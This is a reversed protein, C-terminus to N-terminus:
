PYFTYCSHQILFAPSVESTIRHLYLRQGVLASWALSLKLTQLARFQLWCRQCRFYTSNGRLAFFCHNSSWAGCFNSFDCQHTGNVAVKLLLRFIPANHLSRQSALSPKFLGVCASLFQDPTGLAEVKLSVDFFCVCTKMRANLTFGPLTGQCKGGQPPMSCRPHPARSLFVMNPRPGRFFQM